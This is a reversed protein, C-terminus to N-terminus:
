EQRRWPQARRPSMGSGGTYFAGLGMTKRGVGILRPRRVGPMRTSLAGPTVTKPPKMM